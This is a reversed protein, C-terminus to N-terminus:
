GPGIWLQQRDDFTWGPAEVPLPINRAWGGAVRDMTEEWSRIGRVTDVAELNCAGVAVGATLAAEPPLDRLLASLFGAITADGAGATSVVDVRFCPAWLERGAWREPRSPCGAGMAEIAAQGATRLYLGREGLKFVVIKVGMALLEQSLESLLQPTVLPLFNPRGMLRYLRNYTDRRLMYLIEEISPLFIDVYPLAARLVTTWDARGAASSPDPLAMDLSTMTGLEKVRRFIEVLQEGRGAFMQRMLPPYGFHFLHAAAVLDYRIDAASFTDNAGPCHLQIREMDPPRIIVTYSTNVAPDVIMGDALHTEYTSILRKIAQGFIDDGVKGMLQTGIGLKYLALGVNSVPGGPSFFLAGIEVLSGPIFMLDLRDYPHGALNPMVDLCIHGGVVASYTKSM